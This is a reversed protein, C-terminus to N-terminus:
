LSFGVIIRLAKESFADRTFKKVIVNRGRRGINRMKRRNKISYEFKYVFLKWDSEFYGIGISLIKKPKLERILSIQAHYSLFREKSGYEAKKIERISRKQNEKSVNEESIVTEM